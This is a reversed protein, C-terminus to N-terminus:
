HAETTETSRAQSKGGMTDHALRGIFFTLMDSGIVGMYLALVYYVEPYPVGRGLAGGAWVTVLDESVPVGLGALMLLAFYTIPHADQIITLVHDFM